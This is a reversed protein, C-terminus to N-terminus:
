IYIYGVFLWPGLGLNTTINELFVEFYGLKILLGMHTNGFITTGGFCGLIIMKILFVWHNNPFGVMKPFM